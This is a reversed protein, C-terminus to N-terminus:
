KMLEYSVRTENKVHIGKFDRHLRQGDEARVSSFTQPGTYGRPRGFEDSSISGTEVEPFNKVSFGDDMEHMTNFRNLKFGAVSSTDSRTIPSSRPDSGLVSDPLM